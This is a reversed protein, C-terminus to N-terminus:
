GGITRSRKSGTNTRYGVSGPYHHASRRYRIEQRDAPTPYDVTEHNVEVSIYNRQFKVSAKVQHLASKLVKAGPM